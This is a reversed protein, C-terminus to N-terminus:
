LGQELKRKREWEIARARDREWMKALAILMMHTRPWQPRVIKAWQKAEDSFAQEEKGGEVVSHVGRQNYRENVLGNQLDKSHHTEIVARVAKAPWAGDEPDLPSYALIQGIENDAPSQRDAEKAKSRAAAIWDM